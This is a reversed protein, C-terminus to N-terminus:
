EHHHLYRRRLPLAAGLRALEDVMEGSRFRSHVYLGIYVPLPTETRNANTAKTTTNFFVLQAINFTAQTETVIEESSPGRTIMGVLFKLGDPVSTEQCQGKFGHEEVTFKHNNDNSHSAIERRCILAVKALARYDHSSNGYLSTKVLNKMASALVLMVERRFGIEEKLVPFRELVIDKLRTRNVDTDDGFHRKRQCTEECIDKLPFCIRGASIDEDIMALVEEIAKNCTDQHCTKTGVTDTKFRRRFIVLCMAHYKLENAVLDGVTLKNLVKWDHM